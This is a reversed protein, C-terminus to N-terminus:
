AILSALYCTWQNSQSYTGNRSIPKGIIAYKAGPNCANMCDILRPNPDTGSSDLISDFPLFAIGISHNTLPRHGGQHQSAQNM